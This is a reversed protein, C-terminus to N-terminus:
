RMVFNYGWNIFRPAFSRDDKAGKIVKSGIVIEYNELHEISSEVFEQDWLDTDLHVLYTGHAMELGRKLALGKNGIPMIEIVLEPYKKQLNKLIKLTDDTSGNEVVLVEGDIKKKRLFGVANKVFSEVIKEENYVATIISLMNFIWGINDPERPIEVM